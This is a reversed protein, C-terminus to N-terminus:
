NLSLPVLHPISPHGLRPGPLKTGSGGDGHMPEM